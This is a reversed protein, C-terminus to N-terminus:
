WHVGYCIGTYLVQSGLNQLLTLYVTGDVFCHDLKNCVVFVLYEKVLVEVTLAFQWWILAAALLFLTFRKDQDMFGTSCFKAIALDKNKGEHPVLAGEHFFSRVKEAAFIPSSTAIVGPSEACAKAEPFATLYGTWFDEALRPSHKPSLHDTEDWIVVVHYIWRVTPRSPRHM